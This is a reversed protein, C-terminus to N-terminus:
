PANASVAALANCAGTTRQPLVDLWARPTGLLVVAGPPNAFEVRAYRGYRDTSVPPSRHLVPLAPEPDVLLEPAARCGRLDLRQPESALAEIPAADPDELFYRTLVVVRPVTRLGAVQLAEPIGTRLMYAGGYSDPVAALHVAPVNELGTSVRVALQRILDHSVAGAVHWRHAFVTTWVVCVVATMTGVVVLRRMPLTAFVATLLCAMGIGPLYLLRDNFTTALSVPL